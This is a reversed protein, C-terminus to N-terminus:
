FADNAKDQNTKMKETKNFLAMALIPRTLRTRAIHM